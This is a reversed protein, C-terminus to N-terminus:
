SSIPVKVGPITTGCLPEEGAVTHFTTGSYEMIYECNGPGTQGRQSMSFGIPNNGYLGAADYTTIGLMTNIYSSQTPNAGAAKLGTIFGDVSVYGTYEAATPDGTVGAYTKLANQFRDTAPTNLEVPQYNSGFSVGQASQSAGPGGQVLDGGYGSPLLVGKLNVGSQRLADILAFSTNTEVATTLGDVGASKMALAVPGVNTSGFPLNANLYAVKIGAAQASDAVGKADESSSPSIGYGISGIKTVGAKKFFLGSTSEVKSYDTTGYVSFMNRATLWETGDVQAGIVPIGHKTLFPAAAFGFGSDLLVAFVHDQEVLKQAAALAGTTSSTTDAVIYKLKYGESNVLGVGAKVGKPFTSQNAASVGTVDTLVGVTYSGTGAGSSSGSSGSPSSGAASGSSGSSSSASSGSTSGTSGVTTASSQSSKSSSSCGAAILLVAMAALVLGKRHVMHREGQSKV